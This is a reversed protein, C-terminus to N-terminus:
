QFALALDPGAILLCLGSSCIAFASASALILVMTSTLCSALDLHFLPIPWCLCSAPLHLHPYPCLVVCRWIHCLRCLMYCIVCGIDMYLLLMYGCLGLGSRLCFCLYVFLHFSLAYLLFYGCSFSSTPHQINYASPPHQYQIPASAQAQAQAQLQLLLHFQLNCIESVSVCVVYWM